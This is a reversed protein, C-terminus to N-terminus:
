EQEGDQGGAEPSHRSLAPLARTSSTYPLPVAPIMRRRPVPGTGGKQPPPERQLTAPTESRFLPSPGAPGFRSAQIDGVRGHRLSIRSDGHNVPRPDLLM